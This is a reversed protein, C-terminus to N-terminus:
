SGNVVKIDAANWRVTPLEFRDRAGELSFQPQEIRPRRPVMPNFDEPHVRPKGEPLQLNVLTAIM